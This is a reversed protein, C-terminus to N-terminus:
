PVRALKKKDSSRELDISEEAQGRTVLRRINGLERVCFYIVEVSFLATALITYAVGIAEYINM